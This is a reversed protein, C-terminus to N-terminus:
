RRLSSRRGCACQWSASCTRIAAAPRAGRHRGGLEARRGWATVLDVSAARRAGSTRAASGSSWGAGTADVVRPGPTSGAPTRREDAAGQDVRPRVARGPRGAGRCRGDVASYTARAPGDGKEARGITRAVWGGGPHPRRCRSSRSGRRWVSSPGSGPTGSGSSGATTAPRHGGRDPAPRRRPRRRPRPGRGDLGQTATEFMEVLPGAAAALRSPWAGGTAERAADHRPAVRGPLADEAPRGRLVEHLM